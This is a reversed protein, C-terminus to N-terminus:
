LENLLISKNYSNTVSPGAFVDLRLFLEIAITIVGAMMISPKFKLLECDITIAKAFDYATQEIMSM